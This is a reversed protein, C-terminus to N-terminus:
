ARRRRLRPSRPPSSRRSPRRSGVNRSWAAARCRRRGRGTTPSSLRLEVALVTRADALAHADLRSGDDKRLLDGDAAATSSRRRSSWRTRRAQLQSAQHREALARAHAAARDLDAVCQPRLVVHHDAAAAAVLGARAQAGAVRAEEAFAGVQVGAMRQGEAVLDADARAGHQERVTVPLRHQAAIRRQEARDVDAVVHEDAVLGEDERADRMPAPAVTITLENTAILTGAAVSTPPTGACTIRCTTAGLRSSCITM